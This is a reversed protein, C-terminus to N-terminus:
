CHVVEQGRRSFAGSGPADKGEGGTVCVWLDSWVWVKHPQHALVVCSNTTISLRTSKCM